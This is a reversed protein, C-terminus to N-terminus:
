FTAHLVFTFITGEVARALPLWPIGRRSISVYIQFCICWVRVYVCSILIRFPTPKSLLQRPVCRQHPSLPPCILKYSVFFYNLFYMRLTFCIAKGSVTPGRPCFTKSDGSRHSVGSPINSRVRSVHIFSCSLLCCCFTSLIQCILIDYGLRDHLIELSKM